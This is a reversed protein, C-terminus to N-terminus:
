YIGDSGPLMKRVEELSMGKERAIRALDEYEYKSRSIGYGRSAKLQVPGFETEVTKLQRDLVYRRTSTERIGITSTYRFMARVLAEKDEERCIVRILTGPRSKKMGIPLTYAELAGADFFRELAFGIQEATMDDVNCSLEPVTEQRDETEGLFARLCNAAPFDKKGMGYGIAETKMVPMSGFGTAFHKLLAAGTPTCLEGEIRGGYIPSRGINERIVAHTQENTYAIYCDVQNRLGDPSTTFSFPVIESDGHQCEFQSFDISRRHVRAPTGTKFRRIHLGAKVLSDTLPGAASVGDPGSPYSVEGVHITGGLYTGTAIVAAKVPYEAGLKTRVASVHGDEIVVETVEAQRLFLNETSELLHKMYMHYQARDAQVRLSHVAPGKGRNLMRSQIFCRDAAIGMVGGLADIERVLHGKTTGGISPNCPLNAVADLTLTFLVVKAGLKAAAVAAEIGAHGAGIVAIDYSEMPYPM